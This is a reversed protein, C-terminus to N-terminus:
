EAAPAAEEAVPAAEARAEAEAAKQLEEEADGSKADKRMAEGELAADALLPAKQLYAEAIELLGLCRDRM